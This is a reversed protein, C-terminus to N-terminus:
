FSEVWPRLEIEWAWSSRPQRLLHWYTDAIADPDRPGREAAEGRWPKLALGGFALRDVVVAGQEVRAVLALSVNAFAYSARDRVKRYLQTGGLPPPLVVGTIIQANANKFATIQATFNDTLNQYRGPDHLKYGQKALAPPFGSLVLQERRWSTVDAGTPPM